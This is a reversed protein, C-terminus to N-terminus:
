AEGWQDNLQLLWGGQAERQYFFKGWGGIQGHELKNSFGEYFAWEKVGRSKWRVGEVSKIVSIFSM